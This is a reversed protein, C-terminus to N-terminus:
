PALDAMYSTDYLAHDLCTVLRHQFHVRFFARQGCPVVAGGMQELLGESRNQSSMHLLGSGADVFFPQPKVKGMKRCQSRLFQFLHFIQDILANCLCQGHIDSIHRNFLCPLGPRLGEEPLFVPINHTDHIHSIVGNFEAAASM